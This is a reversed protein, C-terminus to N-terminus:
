SRQRCNSLKKITQLLDDVIRASTCGKGKDVEPIGVFVLRALLKENGRFAHVSSLEQVATPLTLILEM